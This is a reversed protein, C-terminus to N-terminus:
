GDLDYEVLDADPQELIEETARILGAAETSIVAKKYPMSELDKPFQRLKLSRGDRMLSDRKPMPDFSLEISRKVWQGYKPGGSPSATRGTAALRNRRSEEDGARTYKPFKQPGSRSISSKAGCFRVVDGIKFKGSMGTTKWAKRIEEAYRLVTGKGLGRARVTKIEQETPNPPFYIGPRAVFVGRKMIKEEWGGLPKGTSETGTDFPKPARIDELTFIGDTAIMLLKERDRHLGMVDLIQARTGSTIMGAWIWSNYPANGVSQALKGYCSNMGLKLVIGPGEKGIRIREKYYDAIDAFPECQCTREYVFASHFRIGDFHKAGALFEKQWMWGGGSARPFSISGDETRFPFPAWARECKPLDISYRVLAHPAKRMREFSKTEHWQGHVLCPLFLLQYPYASSIDLNRVPESVEGIISNEFRGGFFACSAAHQMAEPVPTVQEKIRMKKLMAAASSGAGYFSSLNLGVAEHADVLAHALRAMCACEELCYTWVDEPSDQYLVDFNGRQDKMRTMRQLMEEAGIKWDRLASTFKAQFFKFVDWIVRRQKGKRVMFKTGELNIHYGRWRVPWLKMKDGRVVKRRLDPRFLKYLTSNPLDRLMMTLDYNFSYAFLRATAPLSLIFDLCQETGLGNTCEIQWTKSEDENSAGMFVYRHDERGYGEGDVGIYARPSDGRAKRKANRRKKQEATLEKKKRHNKEPLGCITCPNWTPKHSVRHQLFPKGCRECPDGEPAHHTSIRPARGPLAPDGKQRLAPEPKRGEGASRVDQSDDIADDRRVRTKM